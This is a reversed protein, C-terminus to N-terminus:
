WKGPRHSETNPYKVLENKIESALIAADGGHEEMIILLKQFSQTLGVELSRAVKRLVFSAKDKSRTIGKIEEDDDVTIIRSSILQHCVNQIPLINVLKNFYTTFIEFENIGGACFLLSISATWM